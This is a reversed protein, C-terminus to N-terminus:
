FMRDLIIRFSNGGEGVGGSLALKYHRKICTQLTLLSNLLPFRPLEDKVYVCVCGDRESM